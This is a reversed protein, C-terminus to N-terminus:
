WARTIRHLEFPNKCSMFILEQKGADTMGHPNQIWKNEIYYNICSHIEKESYQPVHVPVHPDYFEFGGQSIMCFVFNCCFWDAVTNFVILFGLPLM